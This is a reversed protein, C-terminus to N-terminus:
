AICGGFHKLDALCFKAVQEVDAPIKIGLHQLPHELLQYGLFPREAGCQVLPHIELGCQHFDHQLGMANLNIVDKGM